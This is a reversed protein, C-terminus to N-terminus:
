GPPPRVRMRGDRTQAGRTDTQADDRAACRARSAIAKLWVVSM